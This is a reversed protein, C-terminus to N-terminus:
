LDMLEDKYKDTCFKINELVINVLNPINVFLFGMFVFFILYILYQVM